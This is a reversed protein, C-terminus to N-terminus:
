VPVGTIYSLAAGAISGAMVFALGIYLLGTSAQLSSAFSALMALVSIGIPLVLGIGLRLWALWADPGTVPSASVTLMAVTFLVLQAALAVGGAWIMRRLPTPSLQPTVLYWHGLLMASAVSGLSAASLVLQAAFLPASHTGGAAALAVLGAVGAAGSAIAVGSRPWKAISAVLYAVGGVALLESLARRWEATPDAATGAPLAFESLLTIGAFLALLAAMFLRYGRTTGGLREIIGVVLFSGGTLEAWFIWNVFPFAELSM